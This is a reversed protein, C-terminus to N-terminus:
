SPVKSLAQMRKFEEKYRAVLEPANKIVLMNEDNDSQASKSFNFSGMILTSDDVIIVKHHMLAPNTDVRVDLRGQSAPVNAQMQHIVSYRSAAQSKEFVGSVTGGRDIVAQMSAAIETDAFSFAMFEVKKANQLENLIARQAGGQAAASPSFYPTIQAGGVNVTQAQPHEAGPKDTKFNRGEFMKKFEAEYIAALDTSQIQLANNNDGHAGTDTINFSGTWVTGGNVVLFKDHMLGAKNDDPIVPIGAAQLKIIPDRLTQDKESHVYYDNETVLRVTVGRQKARILADVVNPIGIDFFAGDLTGGAQVSDILATLQKDPNNADAESTAKNEANAQAKTKGNIEGAYTNNFYAQIGPTPGAPPTVPPQVPPTVPPQVPPQAPPTVPPQPAPTPSILSMVWDIFRRVLGKKPPVEAIMAAPPAVQPQSSTWADGIVGFQGAAPAAPQAGGAMPRQLRRYDGVLGPKANLVPDPM